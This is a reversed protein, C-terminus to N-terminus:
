SINKICDALNALLALAQKLDLEYDTSQEVDNEDLEEVRILVKNQSNWKASVIPTM